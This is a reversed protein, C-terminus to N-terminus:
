ARDRSRVILAAARNVDENCYHAAFDAMLQANAATATVNQTTVAFPRHCRSCRGSVSIGDVLHTILLQRATTM